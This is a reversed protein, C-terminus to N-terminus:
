RPSLYDQTTYRFLKLKRAHSEAIVALCTFCPTEKRVVTDMNWVLGFSKSKSIIHSFEFSCLDPLHVIIGPLMFLIAQIALIIPVWQYYQIERHSTPEKPGPLSENFSVYYTNQVKLCSFDFIYKNQFFSFHSMIFQFLFAHLSCFWDANQTLAM